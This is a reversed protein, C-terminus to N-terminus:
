RLLYVEGRLGKKIGNLFEVVCTYYFLASEQPMGKYFGDWWKFVSDSSFVIEGWRNFINWNIQKVNKAFPGFKDNRFDNNPSFTNPFNILNEVDLNVDFYISDISICEYLNTYKVKIWIQDKRKFSTIECTDCTLNVNSYWKFRGIDFSDIITIRGIVYFLEETEYSDSTFQFIKIDTKPLVSVNITDFTLCRFSDMILFSYTGPKDVLLSSKTSGDDWKYLYHGDEAQLFVSGGECFFTDNLPTLPKNKVKVEKTFISDCGNINMFTDVFIGITINGYILDYFCIEETIFGYSIPNVTLQIERIRECGNEIFTDYYTGTKNFGLYKEKECISVKDIFIKPIVYLNLTVFSDCNLYSVLTDRFVGSTNLNQGNFITFSGQCITDFIQTSPTDKVILYLYIFSDCGNSNVFTDKYLGEINQYMGNFLIPKNICINLISDKKTTDVVTLHLYLFSDCGKTNLLTDKYIGNTNRIVGNFEVPENKCITLFYNMSSTDAPRCRRQAFFTNCIILFFLFVVNKFIYNKRM